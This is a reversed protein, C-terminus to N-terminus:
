VGPSVEGRPDSAAGTRAHRRAICGRHRVRPLARDDQRDHLSAAWLTARRPASLVIIYLCARRQPLGPRETSVNVCSSSKAATLVGSVHGPSQSSFPLTVTSSIMRPTLMDGEIQTDEIVLLTDRVAVGGGTNCDSEPRPCTASLIPGMEAALFEAESTGPVKPELLSDRLAHGTRTGARIAECASTDFRSWGCGHRAGDLAEPEPTCESGYLRPPTVVIDFRAIMAASQTKNATITQARNVGGPAGNGKGGFYWRRAPM